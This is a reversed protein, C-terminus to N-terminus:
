PQDRGTNVRAIFPPKPFGVSYDVTIDTLGWQVSVRVFPVPYVRVIPLDRDKYVGVVGYRRSVDVTLTLAVV